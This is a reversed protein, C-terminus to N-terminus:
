KDCCRPPRDALHPDDGSSNAAMSMENGAESVGASCNRKLNVQRHRCVVCCSNEIRRGKRPMTSPWLTRQRGADHQEKSVNECSMEQAGTASCREQLATAHPCCAGGTAVVLGRDCLGQWLPTVLPNRFTFRRACPKNLSQLVVTMLRRRAM